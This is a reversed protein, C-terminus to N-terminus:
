PHSAGPGAAVWPVMWGPWAAPAATFSGRLPLNARASSDGVYVGFQGVPVV